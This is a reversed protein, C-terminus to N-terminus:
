PKSDDPKKTEENAMVLGAPSELKASRKKKEEADKQRKEAQIGALASPQDQARNALM